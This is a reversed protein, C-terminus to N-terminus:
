PLRKRFPDLQPRIVAEPGTAVTSIRDKALYVQVVRHVEEPTVARIREEYRLFYDVSLNHRNLFVLQETLGDRTSSQLLFRDILMTQARVVSSTDPRASRLDALIRHVAQLAPRAHTARTSVVAAWFSADRHSEILSHPSATYPVAQSQALRSAHGGGILVTAVRLAPYDPHRPGPLPAGLALTTETSNAQDYIHLSADAVPTVRQVPVTAPTTWDGLHKRAAAEADSPRFSGVVYLATSRPSLHRNVFSQLESLTYAEVQSQPADPRGYSRQQFLVSRLASRAAAHGASAPEREATVTAQANEFAREAALASDGPENAALDVMAAIVSYLRAIADPVASPAVDADLILADPTVRTDYSVAGPTDTETAVEIWRALLHTMGAESAAERATGSEIVFRVTARNDSEFPVLRVEVGNPLTITRRATPTMARASITARASASATAPTTADAGPGPRRLPAGTNRASGSARAASITHASISADLEQLSPPEGSVIPAPTALLGTYWVMALLLTLMSVISLCPSVRTRTAVTSLLGFSLLSPPSPPRVRSAAPHM